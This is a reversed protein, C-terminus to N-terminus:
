LRYYPQVPDCQEAIKKAIESATLGAELFEMPTSKRCFGLGGAAVIGQEFKSRHFTKNDFYPPGSSTVALGMAGTEKDYAVVYLTAKAPLAILLFLIHLLVLRM